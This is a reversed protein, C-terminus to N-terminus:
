PARRVPWPGVNSYTTYTWQGLEDPMFRTKYSGQGDYFGDVDLVRNRYRFHAGLQVELYPNGGAPGQLTIEHM